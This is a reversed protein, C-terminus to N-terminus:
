GGDNSHTNQQTTRYAGSTGDDGAPTGNDPPLEQLGIPMVLWAQGSECSVIVDGASTSRLPATTIHWVVEPNSTWSHNIHNTLTFVQELPAVVDAVHIYSRSRDEYWHSAHPVAMALLDNAHYVAYRPHTHM